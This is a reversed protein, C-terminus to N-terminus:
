LTGDENKDLSKFTLLLKKEHDKLYNSFENFDLSDDKNEDGFSVIKQLFCLINAFRNNLWSGSFTNFWETPSPNHKQQSMLHTQWRRRSSEALPHCLLEPKVTQVRQKCNKVKRMLQVNGAKREMAEGRFKLRKLIPFRSFIVNLYIEPTQTTSVHQVPPKVQAGDGLTRHTPNETVNSQLNKYYLIYQTDPM